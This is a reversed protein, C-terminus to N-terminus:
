IGCNAPELYTWVLNRRIVRNRKAVWFLSPIRSNSPNSYRVSDPTVVRSSYYKFGFKSIQSKCNCLILSFGLTHVIINSRTRVPSTNTSLSFMIKPKWYQAEVQGLNCVKLVRSLFLDRTPVGIRRFKGRLSSKIKNKLCLLGFYNSWRRTRTPQILVNPNNLEEKWSWIGSALFHNPLQETIIFLKTFFQFSTSLTFTKNYTCPQIINVLFCQNIYM